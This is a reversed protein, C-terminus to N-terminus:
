KQRYMRDFADAYIWNENGNEDRVKIGMQTRGDSFTHLEHALVEHRPGTGM